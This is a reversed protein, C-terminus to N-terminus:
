TKNLWQKLAKTTQEPQELTPLHGANPIINLTSNPILQHMLQHREPPCLSDSEGCLILTPLKYTSLTQQQDSRSQLAKSQQAFVLAGLSDAMAMCTDLINAKNPGDCLYCPKMEDKMVEHLKGNKVKSMQIDRNASVEPTEALPSTDLLALRTIREPMQRMMEMAVIGGMSLGALAFKPPAQQFISEALKQISDYGTLSLVKVERQKSSTSTSTPSSTSLASIQPAFLREDCMMGPLLILPESM